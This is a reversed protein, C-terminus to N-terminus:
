LTEHMRRIMYATSGLCIIAFAGYVVPKGPDRCIQIGAYRNGYEDHAIETNHYSVGEWEFPANAETIGEAVIEGGKMLALAVWLRSPMPDKYAVLVFTFPFGAPLGKPGATEYSGLDKGHEHVSLHLNNNPVDFEDVTVHYPGLDFTEGTKVVFFGEKRGNKLVGVKVPVPYYEMGIERVLLSAALPIEEKRDWRYANDVSKGEYVNVTAVYGGASIAAGILAALVGVHIVVVPKSLTRIRKITCVVLNLGLVALGSVFAFSSYFRSSEAFTGPVSMLSIIGFLGLALKRSALANYIRELRTGFEM